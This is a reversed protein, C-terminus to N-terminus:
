RSLGGDFPSTLEAKFEAIKADLDIVTFEADKWVESDSLAKIYSTLEKINYLASSRITENNLEGNYYLKVIYNGKLMELYQVFLKKKGDVCSDFFEDCTMCISMAFAQLQDIGDGLLAKYIGRFM